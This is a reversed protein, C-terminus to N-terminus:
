GERLTGGFAIRNMGEPLWLVHVLETPRRCVDGICSALASALVRKRELEPTRAQLVSVFVPRPTQQPNGGQEAYHTSDLRHLRVWTRGPETGFVAGAADAIQQAWSSDITEHNEQVIEISLIPM